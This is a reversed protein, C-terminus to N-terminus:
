MCLSLEGIEYLWSQTYLLGNNQQIAILRTDWKNSQGLISVQPSVKLIEVKFRIYSM